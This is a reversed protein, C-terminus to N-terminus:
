HMFPVDLPDKIFVLMWRKYHILDLSFTWIIFGSLRLSKILMFLLSELEIVIFCSKTNVSSKKLHDEWEENVTIGSQSKFAENSINSLAAM